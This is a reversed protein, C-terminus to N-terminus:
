QSLDRLQLLLRQVDLVLARAVVDVRRPPIEIVDFTEVQLQLPKVASVCLDRRFRSPVGIVPTGEKQTQAGEEARDGRRPPSATSPRALFPLKVILSFTDKPSTTSSP